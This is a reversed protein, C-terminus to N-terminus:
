EGMVKYWYELTTKLDDELCGKIQWQTAMIIKSNDGAFSKIEVPRYKREDVLVEINSESIKLLLDLIHKISIARGSAVNYIGPEVDQELLKIYADVVDEVYLFDREASLDGVTIVPRQMGKNIAAIQSSFDSVVFGRKQYPGFHNFSRTSIIKIKQKKGLKLIIQEACFKSIAYPNQPLCPMGENLLSNTKATIGYEDGSGINIFKGTPNVTNLANMVNITGVVNVSATLAAKNWAVDVNSQAALHIVSDPQFDIMCSQVASCDLIDIIYQKVQKETFFDRRALELIGVTYGKELLRKVLYNGVFGNAGTILVRM